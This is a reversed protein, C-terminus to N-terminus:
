VKKEAVKVKPYANLAYQLSFWDLYERKQDFTLLNMGKPLRSDQFNKYINNIM